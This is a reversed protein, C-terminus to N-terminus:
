VFDVLLNAHNMFHVQLLAAPTYHAQISSARHRMATQAQFLLHQCPIERCPLRLKIGVLHISKLQGPLGEGEQM